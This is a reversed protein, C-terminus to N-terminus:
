TSKEKARTRTCGVRGQVTETTPTHEHKPATVGKAMDKRDTLQCLDPAAKSCYLPVRVQAVHPYPPTPCPGTGRGKPSVLHAPEHRRGEM